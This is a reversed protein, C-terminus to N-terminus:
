KEKDAGDSTEARINDRGAEWKRGEKGDEM